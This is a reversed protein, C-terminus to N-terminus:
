SSSSPASTPNSHVLDAAMAGWADAGKAGGGNGATAVILGPAVEQILPFWDDTYTIICPRTRMSVFDIEPWLAQLAPGLLPLYDDDTASEFWRQITPLDDPWTDLRINAGMKICQRGDPYRVPPTMYIADLDDGDNLYKVVPYRGLREADHENVEGLIIVETKLRLPAPEPLLRHHNTFAGTAVVVHPAHFRQGSATTVMHGPGEPAIDTVIDEVVTAGRAAALAEQADILRKPRIYGAPGSEYAVAHTAPFDIAPWRESWGREGPAWGDHPVGQDRLLAIPDPSRGDGGPRSAILCGVPEHFPIGSRQELDPYAEVARATVEAWRRDRDQLRTLRAEDNHSSFVRDPGTTLGRPGIAVVSAGREALHRAAASGFLGRGVVIVDPSDSPHPTESNV